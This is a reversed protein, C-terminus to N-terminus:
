LNNLASAISRSAFGGDKFASIRKGEKLAERVAELDLVYESGVKYTSGAPLDLERTIKELEKGINNYYGQLYGTRPMGERRAIEMPDVTFRKAESTQAAENVLSRTPLIYSKTSTDTAYPDKKYKLANRNIIAENETKYARRMTDLFDEADTGGFFNIRNNYGPESIGFIGPEFEISSSGLIKKKADPNFLYKFNDFSAQYAVEREFINRMGKPMLELDGKYAVGFGSRKEPDGTIKQDLLKNLQKQLDHYNETVEKIKSGFEKFPKSSLEEIKAMDGIFKPFGEADYLEDFQKGFTFNLKKAEKNIDDVLPKIEKEIEDFDPLVKLPEKKYPSVKKSDKGTTALRRLDEEYDSQIRNVKFVDGMAVSSDFALVDPYERNYHEDPRAKRGEVGEVRYAREISDSSQVSRGKYQNRQPYSIDLGKQNQALYQDLGAPTVKDVGRFYAQIEPTLNNNEDIVRLLRLEGEKGPLVKRLDAVLSGLKKPQDMKQLAERNPSKLGFTGSEVGMFNAPRTGRYENPKFEVLSSPGGGMDDGMRAVRTLGRGARLIPILSAGALGSMLLNGLGGLVNGEQFNKIGRTGFEKVEYAALADGIGPAISLSIQEIIPLEEFKAYAGSLNGESILKGIESSIKNRTVEEVAM